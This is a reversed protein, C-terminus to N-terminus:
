AKAPAADYKAEEGEILHVFADDLTGSSVEFASLLPRLSQLLPIACLTSSLELRLARAARRLACIGKAFSAKFRKETTRTFCLRM